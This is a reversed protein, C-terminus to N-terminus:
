RFLDVVNNIFGGSKRLFTRGDRMMRKKTGSSMMDSNMMMKISATLLGGVIVGKVFSKEM